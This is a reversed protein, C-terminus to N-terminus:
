VHRPPCLNRPHSGLLDPRASNGAERGTAVRGPGATSAADSVSRPAHPDQDDVVAQKGVRDAAALAPIAVEGLAQVGVAVLDAVERQALPVAPRAGVHRADVYAGGPRPHREVRAPPAPDRRREHEAGAHQPVQQAVPAAVVDHVGGRKREERQERGREHARQVAVPEDDVPELQPRAVVPALVEPGGAPADAPGHLLEAQADRLPRERERLRGGLPQPGLAHVAVDLHQGAQLLTAGDAAGGAAACGTTTNAPRWM